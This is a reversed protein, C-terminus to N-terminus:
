FSESMEKEIDSKEEIKKDEDLKMKKEENENEKKKLIVREKIEGYEESIRELIKHAIDDLCLIKEYKQPNEIKRSCNYQLERYKKLKPVASFGANEKNELFDTYPIGNWYLTYQFYVMNKETDISVLPIVYTLANKIKKLLETNNLINKNLM